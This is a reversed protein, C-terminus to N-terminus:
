ISSSSYKTEENSSSGEKILFNNEIYNQVEPLTKLFEMFEYTKALACIKDERRAIRYLSSKCSKYIITEGRYFTFNGTNCIFAIRGDPMRVADHRVHNIAVGDKILCDKLIHGPQLYAIAEVINDFRKIDPM